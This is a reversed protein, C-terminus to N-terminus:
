NQTVLNKSHGLRSLYIALPQRVDEKMDVFRLRIIYNQPHSGFARVHTVKGEIVCNKCEPYGPLSSSEIKLTSGIQFKEPVVVRADRISLKRLYGQIKKDHSQLDIKLFLNDVSRVLFNQFIEMSSRRYIVSWLNLFLVAVLLAVLILIAVQSEQATLIRSIDLNNLPYLGSEMNVKRKNLAAGFHADSL